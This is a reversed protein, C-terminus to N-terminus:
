SECAARAGDWIDLEEARASLCCESGIRFERCMGPRLAYIACRNDSRLHRCARDHNPRMLLKGRRRRAYPPRALEPHLGRAFRELDRDDLFVENDRCCAGCALCDLRVRHRSGRHIADRDVRRRVIDHCDPPVLTEIFGELAGSRVTSYRQKRLDLISWWGLDEDDDDAFFPVVLRARRPGDWVIAHGGQGIHAAAQRVARISFSRVVPRDITVMAM